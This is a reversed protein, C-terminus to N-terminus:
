IDGKTTELDMMLVKGVEVVNGTGLNVTKLRSSHFTPLYGLSDEVLMAASTPVSNNVLFYQQQPM